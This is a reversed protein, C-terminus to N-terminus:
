AKVVSFKDYHKDWFVRIKDYLPQVKALRESETIELAVMWIELSAGLLNLEEETLEIPLTKNTNEIELHPNKYEPRRERGVAICLWCRYGGM